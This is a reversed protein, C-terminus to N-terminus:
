VSKPPEGRGYKRWIANEGLSSVFATHAAQDAEGIRPPLPRPRTSVSRTGASRRTTGGPRGAAELGLDAQRVGLLEVYVEALLLSDMLAGHKVRKSNDIGYRRCLADLSNPGAPHKRRALALTDVVRGGSILPKGLRGLEANLFGIDFAANHIVLPADGIFALFEDAVAAFKPKDALFADTLGHVAVAEAPVSREPNIYLHLENGTPYRNVIELCGLEVLRDGTKPDLGTTETDLVIERMADEITAVWWPRGLASAIERL